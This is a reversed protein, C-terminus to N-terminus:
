LFYNKKRKLSNFFKSKCRVTNKREGSFLQNDFLVASAFFRLFKARRKQPLCIAKFAKTFL